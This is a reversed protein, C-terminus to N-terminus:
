ENEKEKFRLVLSVIEPTNGIRVPPGWTGVGSSVYYHTDGKKLYGWSREYVLSTILNIPFLQGHHTHGSLQIDVGALEAERLGIPQHDLLVVPRSLDIGSLVEDLTKRRVGRYAAMRDERGVLYFFGDVLKWQDRLVTVGAKEIYRVAEEAGGIYEHNGTVAFVGRPAHLRSLTAAMNQEAVPGIDEDIVDGALVIIDPELDNVRAVIDALRQEDVILGLHIDSVMVIHLGSLGPVRKDISLRLTKIVPHLANHYGVSMVAIVAAAVVGFLWRNVHHTYGRLFIDFGPLRSFVLRGLDIVLVALLFYLLAGLWFSGIWVLFNSVSGRAFSELIRGIPYAAAAIIFVTAFATRFVGAGTLAKWGHNFVYYNIGSYVLLIVALIAYILSTKM